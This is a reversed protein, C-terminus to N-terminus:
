EMLAQLNSRYARSSTVKTGDRLLVVYEGGFWLQIERIRAVNVIASRHVRVFGRPSLTEEMRRLTQRVVHEEGHAHVKVYNDAAEIWDIDDTDIFYVRGRKRIPLYEPRSRVAELQDLLCALQEHADNARGVRIRATLHRLADGFRQADFPNPLYDHARVEFAKLAYEDHATVFVVAPSTDKPIAEIVGFGDVDPTHVDLFVVDPAEQSIAEIAESGSECEGVVEADPIADLLSVIRDRGFPEDDVVLCRIKTVDGGRHSM